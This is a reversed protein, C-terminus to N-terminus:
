TSRRRFAAVHVDLRRTKRCGKEGAASVHALVITSDFMQMLHATGGLYALLALYDDFV